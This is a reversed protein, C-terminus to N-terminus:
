RGVVRALVQDPDVPSDDGRWAIHQDPRILILNREYLDRAWPATVDFVRLPVGQKSAATEFRTPEAKRPNLRLLTFDVGFHDFLSSGMGRGHNMWLHPARGGPVSSPTYRTFDDTPPTGDPIIIPSEDYRAGLQVGISAFQEGFTALFAGVEQRAAEGAATHAEITTPINIAGYQQALQRAAVTNRTAIPKREKEYTSLLHHGGWGQIMAALKWSLNAADEIGTNMGFGGVPTFLHVADGALLVRGAGFREAVLAVGATWPRHGLMTVPIEAGACRQVLRAIAADDPALSPDAPKSFMLFEDDGNLAILATRVEPNVAWYQWARRNGVFERSLTPARLYTALMRGGHFAQQLAEYGEYRIGLARRVVSQGGDCGVLFEAQWAESGGSSGSEVLVHVNEANEGFEVVRCGFRLTINSRTQARELLLREVYMQNARHIPEPVQDTASSAAVRQQQELESPMRLRALEWETFRTFYAVDTPHDQPLGLGRVKESIGLRRYHEMTRSNHTSGKPHWRTVHDENFVVSQVMHRDLFLALMLGVPGGGVIIIPATLIDSSPQNM